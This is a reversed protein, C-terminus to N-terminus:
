IKRKLNQKELKRSDIKYAIPRYYKVKSLLFTLFIYTTNLLMQFLALRIWNEMTSDKFFLYRSIIARKTM